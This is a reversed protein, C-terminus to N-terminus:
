IAPTDHTMEWQADYGTSAKFEDFKHGPSTNKELMNLLWERSSEKKGDWLGFILSRSWPAMQKCMNSVAFDRKTAYEDRMAGYVLDTRSAIEDISAHMREIYREVRKADDPMLAPLLDDMKGSFSYAILHRESSLMEKGKHVRVYWDNKVKVRHGDEFTIVVGEDGEELKKDAVYGVLDTIKAVPDIEVVEIDFREGFLEVGPRNMYGGTHNFRMAVLVLRATPYDLVIQNDRSCFEFIPTTDWEICFEAFARYKEHDATFAEALMAVDTIGMKTGWRVGSSLPLPRIMSGDLKNLNYHPRSIQIDALPMDAREGANFFKQFPRSAIEGGDTYFAIGRCERRVAASLNAEATNGPLIDPFPDTGMKAYNIFTLEDKEVVRFNKTDIHPLVDSINHIVPFDYHLAM